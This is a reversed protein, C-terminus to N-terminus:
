CEYSAHWSIARCQKYIIVGKNCKILGEVRHGM